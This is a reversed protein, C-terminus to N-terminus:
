AHNNRLYTLIEWLVKCDFENYKVIDKMSSMECINGHLNYCNWANVMASTGNDCDSDMDVNIMGHKKMARAINKLGYNFCDKLVISENQFLKCMDSWGEINLSDDSEEQISTDNNKWFREELIRDPYKNQHRKVASNWFKEDASWHHLTPNKYQGVFDIFKKMILFENDPTLDECIFSKHNWVGEEEWGVGIMFIIENQRQCSVDSNPAFIDSLTEFDVFLDSGKTKWNAHNNQIIAPSILIESQRNISMIKDVLNGRNTNIGLISAKCRDDRWDSVGEQIALNRNKVGVNWVDTIEGSESAVKRKEEQWYGSDVCMNPYLEPRSPPSVSWGSGNKRVDRVWEIANKTIPKYKSDVGEYDIRGLRSFPTYDNYKKGSRTFSTRRGMIFASPATYGQMEGIANTYVLCQSKYAPINGYSRINIGNSNLNLTTFKVDVVVYHYEQTGLNPANIHIEEPSLPPNDNDVLDSIYDSRVLLDIVGGTNDRKNVVPASHIVPIGEKMYELTKKCTSPTIKDSISVVKHINKDIYDVIDSEFQNGRKQIFRTFDSIKGKKNVGNYMMWDSFTDNNMFNFLSTASIINGRKCIPTSLRPKKSRTNNAIEAISRKM